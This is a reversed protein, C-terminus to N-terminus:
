NAKAVLTRVTRLEHDCLEVAGLSQVVFRGDALPEIAPWEGQDLGLDFERDRVRDHLARRGRAVLAVYRSAGDDLWHAADAPWPGDVLMGNRLDIVRARRQRGPESVLLLREDPSVSWALADASFDILPETLGREMEHRLLTLKAGTSQTYFVLGPTASLQFAGQESPLHFKLGREIWEIRMHERGDTSTRREVRAWSGNPGTEAVRESAIVACNAPDITRLELQSAREARVRVQVRGQLDWRPEDLTAYSGCSRQTGDALAVLSLEAGGARTSRVALWQGDPSVATALQTSATDTAAVRPDGLHASALAPLLLGAVARALSSRFSQPVNPHM